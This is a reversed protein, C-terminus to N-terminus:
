EDDGIPIDWCDKCTLELLDCSKTCYGLHECCAQPTGNGDVPANPYKEMFDQLRTRKPHEKSWQEVREVCTNFLSDGWDTVPIRCLMDAMPCKLCDHYISTYYNHMRQVERLFKLADM